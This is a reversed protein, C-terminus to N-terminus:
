PIPGGTPCGFLMRLTPPTPSAAGSTLSDCYDGSFVITQTDAGYRWGNAQDQPVTKLDIQVRVNNPDPPM